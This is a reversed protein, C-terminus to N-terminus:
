SESNQIEDALSAIEEVAAALEEAGKAQERTAQAAQSASQSAQTAAASIQEVGKKAEALAALIEASGTAIERNGDLIIVMDAAMTTLNTTISKNREVEASAATAIEELDRRVRVIQDQVSKVLDKIREANESSDRALNRIDTSVVMFGKGYEGARAAEISGNVALMNTQISVTTIADVIKDIRRAMQDLGNIQERSAASAAVSQEVGAIMEDVRARNDRLAEAMATGKEMAAEARTNAIQAGREIQTIAAASQTTAASQQQAGRNIQEIAAMIQTAARNIEEVAASLEEAAAAVEEASKAISTSNRLEEALESLETAAQESQTLANSQQEVTRLAEQCAASQEEAAAAVAESGKQAETAARASEESASLIDRAGRLIEAMDTRVVELQATVVRGKEVEAGTAAASKNIGDSITTVERQIEAVLTQIDRASKESTEALTRVEDAVVAFGKGHQGARAAEIAANLALLNTQDAIRAVAKVIEGINAAQKELEAVMAVSAIQREAARGISALSATIQGNVSAVLTQLSDTKSQSLEANDRSRGISIGIRRVAQMSEEAAGSAEEAGASIQEMSRRLEEAASSAESIGSSVQTTASAVREAAKQQRAFTRVPRRQAAKANATQSKALSEGASPPAVAVHKTGDRLESSKVLAM